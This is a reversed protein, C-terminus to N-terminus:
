WRHYGTLEQLLTNTINIQWKWGRAGHATLAKECAEQCEVSVVKALGPNVDTPYGPLWTPLIPRLTVLGQSALIVGRVYDDFPAKTRVSSHNRGPEVFYFEGTKPNWSFKELPTPRGGVPTTAKLIDTDWTWHQPNAPRVERSYSSALVRGHNGFGPFTDQAEKPAPGGHEADFLEASGDVNKRYSIRSGWRTLFQQLLVAQAVRDSMSM